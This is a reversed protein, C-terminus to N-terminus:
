LCETNVFGIETETKGQSEFTHSHVRSLASTIAILKVWFNIIDQPESPAPTDRFYQELNKDALEMIVYMEDHHQFNGFYRTIPPPNAGSSLKKYAKVECEFTGSSGKETSHYRKLAFTSKRHIEKLCTFKM